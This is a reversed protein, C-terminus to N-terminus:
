SVKHLGAYSPVVCPTPPLAQPQKVPAPPNLGRAKSPRTAVDELMATYQRYLDDLDGGEEEGPGELLDSDFDSGDFRESGRRTKAGADAAQTRATSRPTPRAALQPSPQMRAPQRSSAVTAANTGDSAFQSDRVAALLADMQAYMSRADPSTAAGAAAGGYLGGGDSPPSPREDLVEFESLLADRLRQTAAM